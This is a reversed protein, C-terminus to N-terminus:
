NTEIIYKYVYEIAAGTEANGFLKHNEKVSDTYSKRDFRRVSAILEGNSECVSFGWSYISTYFAFTQDYKKLDPVYLFCPKFMLSFDWICSSYDSVLVEAAIMLKQMDYYNTADICCSEKAVHSSEKSLNHGRFVFVWKGGFREECAKLLGDVDIKEFKGTEYNRWTPAFLLIKANNDIGLQRRVELAISGHENVKFLIDNRPLGVEAIEGEYGFAGKIAYKTFAKSSSLFLKVGYQGFKENYLRKYKDKYPNDRGTKKYAGGGHWTNIIIQSKRYELAKYPGTNTIIYKSTIGYYLHALSNYKIVKYGRDLLWQFEEPNNVAWVLEYRINKNEIFESIYRPSDSFDKGSFSYFLIRNCKVPFIYLIKLLKRVIKTIYYKFM